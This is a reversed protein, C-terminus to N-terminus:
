SVFFFVFTEATEKKKKFTRMNHIEIIKTNSAIWSPSTRTIDNGYNPEAIILTVRRAFSQNQVYVRYM